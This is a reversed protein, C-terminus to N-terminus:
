SVARLLKLLGQAPLDSKLDKRLEEEHTVYWDYAQQMMQQNTTKPKWELLKRAKSIDLVYDHDAIMYHEINLPTLKFVDFLRLTNRVLFANTGIVKSRKGAHRVLTQLMERVTPVNGAGINFVQNHGKSIAKICADVFDYVGLMQFRNNGKGITYVNKNHNIFYFFITLLCVRGAGIIMRPRLITIKLGKQMYKMCEKEAALKSKGYDGIPIAADKETVYVSPPIGYVISSSVHVIKKVKHKLAAELINITGGVNVDWFQRKARSCPLLSALNFAVTVGKCAEMMRQADTVSGQFFQINKHLKRNPPRMDLIRVKHGLEALKEALYLGAFGAGGTVLYM